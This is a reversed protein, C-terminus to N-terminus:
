SDELRLELLKSAIRLDEADDIDIYRSKPVVYYKIDDGYIKNSDMLYDRSVIWISGNTKFLKHDYDQRRTKPDEDFVRELFNENTSRFLSAPLHSPMTVVSIVTHISGSTRSDSVLDLCGIIDSPDVLPNTCQLLVVWDYHVSELKEYYNVAHILVDPSTAEDSSLTAPRLFPAEAGYQVAIKQLVEDDTSVVVHRFREKCRTAALISYAILPKGLLNTRNKFKIGKSGRRAPIM